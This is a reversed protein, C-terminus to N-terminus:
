PASPEKTTLATLLAQGQPTIRYRQLRSQPKDPITMAILGQDLLPVIHRKYNLYANSLSLMALLEQKSRPLASCHLLLKSVQESVQEGVQANTHALSPKQATMSGADHPTDLFVSLRVGTAIEVVRPEPLGQAAADAFIRKVGSGWQETLHLERFVRAIVPNRIRSIGSQMDQVTMGPLLFGPSEIDIRDDFFAVRISSGRQAYDAHVLANVIAERLMTLPISWVDQRQMAGFRASKYAHKKLFLEIATVADPLHAHIDQQDFIDVKDLGRFRGCQVWADPFHQERERGWLLLAGRTPLLRGQDARLLKLTQLRATDLPRQPGFWRAMADLDLDQVSLTPMPQEDFVLGAATRRTQAIWDPGAQRNSSGLRLYVGQESGQKVLYHPRAGSPFVEVVLVTADGVSMLEVNPLLRPAIADAILNCIREEEALPDAVGVVQRADDVGIVLRGGASNAFAVLTKLVNQPSSLDRKFELQKGEPQQWLPTDANM